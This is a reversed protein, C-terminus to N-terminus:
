AAQYTVSALFVPPLAPHSGDEIVVTYCRASGAGPPSGDPFADSRGPAVPGSHLTRRDTAPAACTGERVDVAVVFGAPAQPETFRVWPLGGTPAVTLAIRAAASRLGHRVIVTRPRSWRGGASARWMRYCWAGPAVQAAFAPVLTTPVPAYFYTGRPDVPSGPCAGRRRGVIVVRGGGGHVTLTATAVSGAPDPVVTLTGPRRPARDGCAARMTRAVPAPHGGYFHVVARIDDPQLLRCPRLWASGCRRAGVADSAVMTACRRNEHGLGLAHGLEHTTVQRFLARPGCGTAIHVEAFALGGHGDGPSATDGAIGFCGVGHTGHRFGRIRIDARSRPAPALVLRMGSTNWAAIAMPVANGYAGDTRDSFTVVRQQWFGDGGARYADATTPALLCAAAVAMLACRM